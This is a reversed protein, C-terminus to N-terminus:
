VVSFHFKIHFNSIFFQHQIDLSLIFKFLQRIIWIFILILPYSFIDCFKHAVRYTTLGFTKLSLCKLNDSNAIIKM